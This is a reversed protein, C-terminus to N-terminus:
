INSDHHHPEAISSRAFAKSSTFKLVVMLSQVLNRGKMMRRVRYNGDITLVDIKADWYRTGSVREDMLKGSGMFGIRHFSCGM